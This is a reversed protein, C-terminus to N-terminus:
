QTVDSPWRKRTVLTMSSSLAIGIVTTSFQVASRFLYSVWLIQSQHNTIPSQHNARSRAETGVLNEGRKSGAAHPLHPLRPVRPEISRDRDLDQGRVQGRGGLDPLAKLPLCLRDRLQRMRVDAREVVDAILVADLVQHHLVELPLRQRLAEGASRQRQLLHKSKSDLDRVRQVLRM